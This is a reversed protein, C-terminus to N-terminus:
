KSLSKPKKTNFIGGEQFAEYYDFMQNDNLLEPTFTYNAPAFVTDIRDRLDQLIIFKDRSPIYCLKFIYYCNQEKWFAIDVLHQGNRRYHEITDSKKFKFSQFFNGVVGNLTIFTTTLGECEWSYYM